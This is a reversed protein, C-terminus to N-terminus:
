PHSPIVAVNSRLKGGLMNGGELTFCLPEQPRSPLKEVYVQYTVTPGKAVAEAYGPVEADRTGFYIQGKGWYVGGYPGVSKKVGDKSCPGVVFDINYEHKRALALLDTSTSFDIRSIAISPRPKLYDNWELQSENKFDVDTVSVVRIDRPGQTCAALSMAGSIIAAVAVLKRHTLM